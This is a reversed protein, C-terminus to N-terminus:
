YRNHGASIANAYSLPHSVGSSEPADIDAMWAMPAASEAPHIWYNCVNWQECATSFSRIARGTQLHSEVTNQDTQTLTHPRMPLGMALISMRASSAGIVAVADLALENV